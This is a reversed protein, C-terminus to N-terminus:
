TMAGPVCGPRVARAELLTLETQDNPVCVTYNVGATRAQGQAPQHPPTHGNRAIMGLRRIQSPPSPRSLTKGEGGQTACVSRNKVDKPRAESTPLQLRSLGKTNEPACPALDLSRWASRALRPVCPTATWPLIAFGFHRPCCSIAHPPQNLAPGGKEDRILEQLAHHARGPQTSLKWSSLDAQPILRGPVM